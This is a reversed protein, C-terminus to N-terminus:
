AGGLPVRPEIKASVNFIDRLEWGGLTAAAAMHNPIHILCARIGDRIEDKTFKNPALAVAVLFAAEDMWDTLHFAIDSAIEPAFDSEIASAIVSIPPRPVPM